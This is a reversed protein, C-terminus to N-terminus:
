IQRTDSTSHWSGARDLMHNGTSEQRFSPRRVPLAFACSTRRFSLRRDRNGPARSAAALQAGHDAILDKRHNRPRLPSRRRAGRRDFGAASCRSSATRERSLKPEMLAVSRSAKQSAVGDLRVVACEGPIGTAASAWLRAGDLHLALGRRPRPWKRMRPAALPNRQRWQLARVAVAQNPSSRDRNFRHPGFPHLVDDATFHQERGSPREGPNRLTRPAGGESTFIHAGADALDWRRGRCPSPRSESSM